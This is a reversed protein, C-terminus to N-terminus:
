STATLREIPEGSALRGLLTDTCRRYLAFTRRAQPVDAYVKWLGTLKCADRRHMFGDVDAPPYGLFLGIEHPFDATQRLRQMLQALCRAPDAGAYGNERLLRLAENRRLDRALLEPRYLYILGRGAQWRLPITRLGKAALRQNLSRLASRMAEQTPFPCTFLSGTKLAALTPACWRVVMEDSM